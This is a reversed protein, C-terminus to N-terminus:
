VLLHFKLLRTPTVAALYRVDARVVVFRRYKIRAHVHRSPIGFFDFFRVALYRIFLRECQEGLSGCIRHLEMAHRIRNIGVVIREHVDFFVIVLM